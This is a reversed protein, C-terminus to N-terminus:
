LNHQTRWVKPSVGYWRHFAKSFSSIDAYGLCYAIESISEQGKQLANLADRKQKLEVLESFRVNMQTLKRKFTWIPIQLEMAIEEIHPIGLMMKRSIAEKVKKLFKEQETLSFGEQLLTKKIIQFLLPDASPLSQKIDENSIYISNQPCEFGIDCGFFQNHMEINTPKEHEFTIKLPVWNEGLFQRLLNSFMALSIEADASRNLLYHQDVQYDLRYCDGCNVLNMESFEQHCPFYEVLAQLGNLINFSNQFLYGLLGLSDIKCKAGYHLAFNDQGTITKAMEIAQCFDNLTIKDVVINNNDQIVSFCSLIPKPDAGFEYICNELGVIVSSLVGIRHEKKSYQMMSSMFRDEKLFRIIAEAVIM